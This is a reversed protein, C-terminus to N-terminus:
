MAHLLDLVTESFQASLVVAYSLELLAEIEGLAHQRLALSGRLQRQV